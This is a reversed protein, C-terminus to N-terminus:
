CGRQWLSREAGNFHIAATVHEGGVIRSWHMNNRACCQHLGTRIYVTHMAACQEGQEAVGKAKVTIARERTRLHGDCGDIRAMDFRTPTRM